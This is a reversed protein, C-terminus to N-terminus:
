DNDRNITCLRAFGWRWPKARFTSKSEFTRNRVWFDAVQSLLRHKENSKPCLGAGGFSILLKRMFKEANGGYRIKFIIIKVWTM